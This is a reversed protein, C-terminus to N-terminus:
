SSYDHNKSDIFEKAANLAVEFGPFQKGNWQFTHDDQSLPTASYQWYSEGFNIKDPESKRLQIYYGKYEETYKVQSM